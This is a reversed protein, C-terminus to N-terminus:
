YIVSHRLLLSSGLLQLPPAHLGALTGSGLTVWSHEKEVPWHAPFQPLSLIPETKLYGIGVEEEIGQESKGLIQKRSLRPLFLELISFKFISVFSLHLLFFQPNNYSIILM